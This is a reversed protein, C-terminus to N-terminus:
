SRSVGAIRWCRCLGLLETGFRKSAQVTWQRVAVCLAECASDPPQMAHM